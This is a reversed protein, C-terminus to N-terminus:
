NFKYVWKQSKPTKGISKAKLRDQSADDETQIEFGNMRDSKIIWKPAQYEGISNFLTDICRPMIGPDNQDGNLTYTKGSGTVGYTFLLGNKGHLLDELLPYAVHNFVELQSSFASFIHKFKYHVDKRVSRPELANLTLTDATLIKICSTPESGQKLPRIRCYVHVPDKDSDSHNSLTTKERRLKKASSPYRNASNM